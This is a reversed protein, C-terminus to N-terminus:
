ANLGGDAVIEAGTIYSSMGSALFLVISAIEDAEGFRKMPVALRAAEIIPSGEAGGLMPTDIGGPLVSNVRIGHDVLDRAAYRTLGRLAWKSVGYGVYSINGRLAATSAINIISGGGEKMLPVLAQIGYLAGFVHIDLYRQMQAATVTDTPEYGTIGANNVLVDVRGFRELAFAAVEKWDAERAVDHHRFVARDGLEAALAQGDPNVDTLIVTAGENVFLRAESAGQGRAAGTIVAIKNDLLGM